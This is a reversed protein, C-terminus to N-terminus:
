IQERRGFESFKSDIDGRMEEGVEQFVDLLEEYVSGQGVFDWYEEAVMVERNALDFLGALTWREYPGPHYPNYPVALRTQIQVSRDQSLRLAKWRLLKLKLASFEKMNPKVSTIDFYYEVGNVNTHFDVTRDPDRDRPPAQQIHTRIEETEDDSNSMLEGTRLRHHVGSILTETAPDIAGVLRFQRQAENGVGRALTVSVQEWASMGFTTNMSQIFSFMAYRDKGLLRHHFPAHSTEPQYARLKDQVMGRLYRRIEDRTQSPIAM